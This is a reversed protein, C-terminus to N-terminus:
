KQVIMIKQKVKRNEEIESLPECERMLSKCEEPLKQYLETGKSKWNIMDDSVDGKIIAPNGAVIKRNPIQM